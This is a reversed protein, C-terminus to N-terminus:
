KVDLQQLKGDPTLLMYQRVVKPVPEKIIYKVVLTYSFQVAPETVVPNIIIDYNDYPVPNYYLTTTKPAAIVKDEANIVSRRKAADISPRSFTTYTTYRSAPYIATQNESLIKYITDLKLGVAEFSKVKEGIFKVAETRLDDYAKKTDNVFYDVKILDYIENRVAATVIADLQASSTYTIHVNKQLEFGAPKELYTESFLKKNVELDYVPALSIMDIYISATDLGMKKLESKFGNIRKSSLDDVEVLSAAVQTINFVAVFADPQVNILANVELSVENNNSISTFSFPNKSLNNYRMTNEYMQNGAVQATLGTAILVLFSLIVPIKM